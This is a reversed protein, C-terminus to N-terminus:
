SSPQSVHNLGKEHAIHIIFGCLLGIYGIALATTSHLTILQDNFAIQRRKLGDAESMAAMKPHFIM